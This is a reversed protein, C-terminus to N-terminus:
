GEKYTSLYHTADIAVALPVKSSASIPTYGLAACVQKVIVSTTHTVAAIEHVRPPRSVKWQKKM